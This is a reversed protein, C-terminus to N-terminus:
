SELQVAMGPQLEPLPVALIMTGAEIGSVEVLRGGSWATGRIVPKRVLRGAEVALLFDGDGDSRLAGVPVAMANDRSAVIVHGSLFMGGRLAGDSNAIKLYIQISRTGEAAVPNIRSIEAQFPRDRFGEVTLEASQGVKLAAATGLPALARAEMENLDVISAIATGAGVAQGPDVNRASITGSFPATITAYDLTLRIGELQAEQAAINAKLAEVNSQASELASPSALGKDALSQTSALQREALSLQAQTAAIAAQQQAIRLETDATDLSAVVEGQRVSQGPRVDITEVRGAVQAAIASQRAPALAGTVRVTERLTAPQVTTVEVKGLRMTIEAPPPAEVVAEEAAFRTQYVYAGVGAAILVLLLWPWRRRRRVPATGLKPANVNTPLPQAEQLSPRIPANMQDDQPSLRSAYLGHM